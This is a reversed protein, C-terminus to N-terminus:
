KVLNELLKAVTLPGVGGIPPTIYSCKSKVKDFDVDGIIETKLKQSETKLKRNETKLKRNDTKPQIVTTGADIIVAGAKIMERTILGAVGTATILIDAKKTFASLNKTKANCITITADEEAMALMAALPKGVLKGYGVLVVNKGALPIKYAKLLDIIGAPTPPVFQPEGILLKGLNEPHLGDIDKKAEIASIIQNTDLNGPLPLQIIIGTILPNCNLSNILKIIEKPPTNKSLVIKQFNIGVEQCAKKKIKLYVLSAPDEGVLIAALTPMIKKRAVKASLKKKITNALKRGELLVFM